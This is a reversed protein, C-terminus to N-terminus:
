SVKKRAIEVMKVTIGTSEFGFQRRLTNELFRIYSWHITRKDKVLFEFTPPNGHTYLLDYVVARKKDSLKKPPHKKMLFNFLTRVEDAPIEKSRNTLAIEIHTFLEDLGEGTESSTFIYTVDKLFRFQAFVHRLYKQRDEPSLLDAKNILLILGKKAEKAIGAVVQDQHSLATSGDLLLCVVDSQYAAEITRYTAFTEAGFTRQGPKRIGTTDLLIYQKKRGSPLTHEIFTDNVSLTTGAIDTVIQIHEKSLANFLSSKGVNPKGLLIIKPTPVIRQARGYEIREIEEDLDMGATYVIGWMGLARAADVNEENDDIYITKPSEIHHTHILELYFKPDPKEYKSQSSGLGGDFLDYIENKEFAKLGDKSCNSLFYTTKDQLNQAELTQIVTEIPTNNEIDQRSHFLVGYLDFIITQIDVTKEIADELYSEYQAGKVPNEQRVILYKGEKTKQVHKLRTRKPKDEHIQVLHEFEQKEFGMDVLKEVLVDMLTNLNYGNQASINVFDFGGLKAYDAVSADKNPNDVKNICILLPKGTKWIRGIIAESITDPNQKRDIVWILVDADSIASWSKLQIQKQIKDEPDPVLGGTDVFKMQMGEWEDDGYNLDRTTHAEKATIAKKTGTLRNLLTSKGSNPLGILAIHPIATRKTATM